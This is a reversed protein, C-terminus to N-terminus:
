SSTVAVEVGPLAARAADALEQRPWQFRLRLSVVLLVLKQLPRWGAGVAAAVVGVVAGAPTAAFGEAGEPYHEPLMEANCEVKLVKLQTLPTLMTPGGALVAHAQLSLTTLQTLRAVADAVPRLVSPQAYLGLQGYWFMYVEVDQLQTLAGLQAVDDESDCRIDLHRLQARGQLQQLAEPDAAADLDLYRLNPAQLRADSGQLRHICHLTTLATLGAAGRGGGSSSSSSSSLDDVVLPVYCLFKDWAQLNVLHTM